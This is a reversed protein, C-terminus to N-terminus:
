NYIIKSVINLCNKFAMSICLPIFPFSDQYILNNEGKYEAKERQIESHLHM